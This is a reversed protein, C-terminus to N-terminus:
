RWRRGRRVAHDFLDEKWLAWFAVTVSLLLLWSFGMAPWSVEARLDRRKTKMTGDEELVALIEHVRKGRLEVDLRKGLLPAAAEPIDMM